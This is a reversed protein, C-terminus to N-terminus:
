AEVFNNGFFPKVKSANYYGMKKAGNINPHLGDILYEGNSGNLENVGNIGCRHTDILVQGTYDTAIRLSEANRSIEEATRIAQHAHIPTCWFIIANPYLTHLKELAYRYAGASTTRDVTDLPILTDDANYYVATMDEKTIQVGGGNTGIAILIIDPAEYNNNIIKQVQNGLVNNVNNDAGQFVPNGDYVTGAKDHLTAGNVAVNAILECDTKEIFYRLWGRETVGLATISDGLTIIKPKVTTAVGNKRLSEVAEIAYDVGYKGTREGVVSITCVSPKGNVVLSVAGDPVVVTKTLTVATETTEYHAVCAGTADYFYYLYFGSASAAQYGTTIITDGAVVPLTATEYQADSRDGGNISRLKGATIELPYEFNELTTEYAVGGRLEEVQGELEDFIGQPSLSLEGVGFVRAVNNSAPRFNVVLTAANEPVVVTAVVAVGTATTEYHAVCTESEDYFYYAYFGSTSAGQWGIITIEAGAVVSTTAYNYDANTSDKGNINRCKGETITLPYEYDSVTRRANAGINERAQAKQEEILEQACDYRVATSVSDDSVAVVSEGESGRSIEVRWEVGDVVAHFYFAGDVEKVLPIKLQQQEEPELCCLLQRGTNYEALVTEYAEDTVWGDQGHIAAVWFPNEGRPGQPGEPGAPGQPGPDGRLGNAKLDVLDTMAQALATFEGTSEVEGDDYVLGSVTIAFRPCTIIQGDAGYLQFECAMYGASAATQETFEYVICNNMIACDNYLVNGDPKKGKFVACCGEGIRYPRGGDSLSAVIKRATDGKKVDLHTQTTQRHIDLSIRFISSDM